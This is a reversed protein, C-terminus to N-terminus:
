NDYLSSLDESITEYEKKTNNKFGQNFKDWTLAKQKWNKVKNGKADVWNGEQFYDYFQKANITLNKEKIYAEIEDISPPIFDKRKINEKINNNINNININNDKVKQEMGIYSKNWVELLKIRRRIIEKGKYDFSIAIYGQAVLSQIWTSIAKQTVGYLSAFYSNSAWCEGTKNSLATIEGFLLKENAKLNKNYRVEAPIVAYYNPNEEEM